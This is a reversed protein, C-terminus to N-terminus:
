EEAVFHNKIDMIENLIDDLSLSLAFYFPEKQSKVHDNQNLMVKKSMLYRKTVRNSGTWHNNKFIYNVKSSFQEVNLLGALDDTNKVFEKEIWVRLAMLYLIKNASNEICSKNKLAKTDLDDIVKVLEENYYEKNDIKIKYISDYHFLKHKEDDAAWCDKENLLRIYGKYQYNDDLNNLIYDVNFGSQKLSPNIENIYLLDNIRDMVYYNYVGNNQSNSINICDINHTFILIYNNSKNISTIEYIIKYQNPLDYSSLPDDIILTEKDSGIFEFLSVIFTILNIEGTSYTEVDRDLNIELEKNEDNFIIADKPLKLQSNFIEKISTGEEKINNYFIEKKEELENIIKDLQKLEEKATKIEQAKELDGGCILYDELDQITITNNIIFKKLKEINNIIDESNIDTGSSLYDNVIANNTEEIEELNRKIIQKIPEDCKSNCIPCITEDNDIYKDIMELYKRKISDKFDKIKAEQITQNIIKSGYKVFMDQLNSNMKILADVKEGAFHELAKRADKRYNDFSASIEKSKKTNSIGYKDKLIDKPDIRNLLESRKTKKQNLIEVSAAIIISNGKKKVSEEVEEYDIYSYEPHNNKLYSYISSKGIGNSGLITTIKDNSVEIKFNNDFKLYNISNFNKNDFIIM